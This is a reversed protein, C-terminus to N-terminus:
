EINHLNDLASKLRHIPMKATDGNDSPNHGVFVLKSESNGVIWEVEDTSCTHYVGVAVGRIMQTAAYVGTWEKRNYSYISVKDNYDIGLKILSKSISFIYDCLESWNDNQWKNNTDKISFAPESPYEKANQLLRKSTIM